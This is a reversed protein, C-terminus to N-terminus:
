HVPGWREGGPGILWHATLHSGRGSAGVEKEGVRALNLFLLSSSLILALWVIAADKPSPSAVPSKGAQPIAVPTARPLASAPFLQTARCPAPSPAPLSQLRGPPSVPSLELSSAAIPLCTASAGTWVKEKQQGDEM